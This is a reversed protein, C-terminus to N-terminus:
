VTRQRATHLLDREGEEYTEEIGVSRIKWTDHERELTVTYHAGIVYIPGETADTLVYTSRVHFRATAQNEVIFEVVIPGLLNQTADFGAFMEKWDAIFEESSLTRQHSGHAADVQDTLLTPITEWERADLAHFLRTVTETIATKEDPQSM